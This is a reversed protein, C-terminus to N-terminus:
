VVALRLNCVHKACASHIGASAFPSEIILHDSDSDDGTRMAPAARAAAEAEQKRKRKTALAAPTSKAKRCPATGGGNECEGCIPMVSHYKDVLAPREGPNFGCIACFNGDHKGAKYRYVEFEVHTACTMGERVVVRARVLLGCHAALAPLGIRMCSFLCVCWAQTDM